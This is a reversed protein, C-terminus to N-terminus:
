FLGGDRAAVWLLRLSLGTLLAKLVVRFAQEPMRVLIHRGVWNGLSATAVMAAMLPLYAGISFGIFGFATLKILHMTTGLAAVTAAYNRREPSISAVFPAILLGTSSVFMGLFTAVFGVFGFRGKEPGILGFKPAWAILLVFAGIFGLLLPGPLSVFIPAGAAAGLVGGIVFPLLTKWMIFSRLLVIRSVSVGLQVVTHVPILVIPPLVLAMLALLIPGGGAGTLMGMLATCFSSLGLLAVTLGDIGPMGLFGSDM